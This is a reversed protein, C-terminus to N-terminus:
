TILDPPLHSTRNAFALVCEKEHFEIKTIGTNNILLWCDKEAEMHFMAGFLYNYFTGHSVLVVRDETGAHRQLLGRLVREGRLIREPREEFPRNYWGDEGVDAPLQLGNHLSQLQSRGLGPRGYREGEDDGDLYVGGAEHLDMWGELPLGLRTAIASGTLVARRMLSCYVHTPRLEPHRQNSPREEPLSALWEAVYQAQSEGVASLPPDDSRGRSSGTIDWLANNASQAHRVFYLIMM